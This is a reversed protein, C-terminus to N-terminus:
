PGHARTEIHGIAVGVSKTWFANVPVGGGHGQNVPAGMVNKASYSATSRCFRTKAGILARARSCGCRTHSRVMM